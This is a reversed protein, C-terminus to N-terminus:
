SAGGSRRLEAELGAVVERTAATVIHEFLARRARFARYTRHCRVATSLVFWTAVSALAAAVLPQDPAVVVAGLVIVGLVWLCGLLWAALIVAAQWERRPRRGPDVDPRRM